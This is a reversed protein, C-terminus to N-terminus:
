RASHAERASGRGRRAGRRRVSRADAARRACGPRGRGRGRRLRSGDPLRRVRRGVAHRRRGRDCAARRRDARRGCGGVARHRRLADATRRVSRPRDGSAFGAGLAARAGSRRAGAAAVPEAPRGGDREDWQDGGSGGDARGRRAGPDGEVLGRRRLGRDARAQHRDPPHGRRPLRRLDLVPARGFAHLRHRYRQRAAPPRDPTRRRDQKDIPADISM